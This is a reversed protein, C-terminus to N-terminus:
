RWLRLMRDRLAKLKLRLSIPMGVVIQVWEVLATEALDFLTQQDVCGPIQRRCMDIIVTEIADQPALGTLFNDIWRKYAESALM